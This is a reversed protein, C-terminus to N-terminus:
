VFMCMMEVPVDKLSLSVRRDNLMRGCLWKYLGDLAGGARIGGPLSAGNREIDLLDVDRAIESAQRSGRCLPASVGAGRVDVQYVLPSGTEQVVPLTDRECVWVRIGGKGGACVGLARDSLSMGLCRFHGSLPSHPYIRVAGM